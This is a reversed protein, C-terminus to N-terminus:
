KNMFIKWFSFLNVLFIDRVLTPADIMELKLSQRKKEEQNSEIKNKSQSYLKNLFTQSTDRDGKM